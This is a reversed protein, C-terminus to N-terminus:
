PQQQIDEGSGQHLISPHLVAPDLAGPDANCFTCTGLLTHPLSPFPRGEAGNNGTLMDPAKTAILFRNRQGLSPKVEM